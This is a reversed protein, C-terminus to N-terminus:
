TTPGYYRQQGAASDFSLHGSTSLIKSMLGRDRPTASANAVYNHLETTQQEFGKNNFDVSMMEDLTEPRTMSVFSATRDVKIQPRISAESENSKSRKRTREPIDSVPELTTSPAGNKTKPPYVIPPPEEGREKLM